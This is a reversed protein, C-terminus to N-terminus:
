WPWWFRSKSKKEVGLNEKCGVIFGDVEQQEESTLTDRYYALVIQFRGLAAKYHKSKYYFRGVYMEHEALLHRCIKISEKARTAYASNPHAKILRDFALIAQRTASQDRDLSALQQFHCAGIQYLVYPIVENKPHLRAFDEYATIAEPYEQRHFHADAVKLEALIAYRSYPYREKLTTFTELADDYDEDQFDEMGKSALEEASEVKQSRFWSCGGSAGIVWFFMLLALLSLKQNQKM